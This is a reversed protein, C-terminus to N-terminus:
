NTRPFRPEKAIHVAAKSDSYVPVLVPLPFSLDALLRTLCTLEAVLRRMSRYEAETSSLSVSAQKKSKWSIPSGGLSIFFGSISWHTDRCTAWDADCFTLLSFLPKANLLLGQGLNARLYSLCYLSWSMVKVHISKYVWKCPLTKKGPPLVVVDWTQNSELAEIESDMIQKWGAHSSAQSYSIPEIIPSPSSLIHQIHSTPSSPHSIPPSDFQTPPPFHDSPVLSPFLPSAADSSSFHFIDECFKVDRSVFVKKTELDLVKYGKQGTPYGLFVCAKKRPEFKRLQQLSTAISPDLLYLGDQAKGFVQPSKMLPGLLICGFSPFVLLCKFRKLSNPLKVLLPTPLPLLSQFSEYSFCMHESAGSDIIWSSSNSNALSYCSVSNTLFIGTASNANVKAPKGVQIQNLLSVLLTFQESALKQAFQPGETINNNAGKTQDVVATSNERVPGQFKKTKTFKFNTPFGILIYYNEVTPNTMNCYSCMLANKKGKYANNGKNAISKNKQQTSFHNGSSLQTTHQTSGVLFSSGDGSFHTNVHIERQNEDQM